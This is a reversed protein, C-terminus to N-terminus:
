RSPPAGLEAPDAGQIAIRFFRVSAPGVRFRRLGREDEMRPNFDPDAITAISSHFFKTQRFMGFLTGLSKKQQLPLSDRYKYWNNIAPVDSEAKESVMRISVNSPLEKFHEWVSLAFEDTLVPTPPMEPKPTRHKKPEQEPM